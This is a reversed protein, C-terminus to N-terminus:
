RRTQGTVRAEGPTRHRDGCCLRGDRWGLLHKSYERRCSHWSANISLPATPQGAYVLTFTGGPVGAVGVQYGPSNLVLQESWVQIGAAIGDPHTIVQHM